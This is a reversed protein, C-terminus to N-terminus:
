STRSARPRLPALVGFDGENLGLSVYAEDFLSNFLGALRVIRGTIEKGSADLDPRERHWQAVITNVTPPMTPLTEGRSIDKQLADQSM